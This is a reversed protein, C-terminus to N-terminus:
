FCLWLEVDKFAVRLGVKGAHLFAEKTGIFVPRKLHLLAVVAEQV